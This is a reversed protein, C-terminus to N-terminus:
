LEKYFNHRYLILTLLFTGIAMVLPVSFPFPIIISSLIIGGICGIIPFKTEKQIIKVYVSAFPLEQVNYNIPNILDIFGKTTSEWDKTEKVITKEVKTAHIPSELDKTELSYGMKYSNDPFVEEAFATNVTEIVSLENLM